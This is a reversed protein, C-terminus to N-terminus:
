GASSNCDSRSKKVRIGADKIESIGFSVRQTQIMESYSFHPSKEKNHVLFLKIERQGDNNNIFLYTSLLYSGM